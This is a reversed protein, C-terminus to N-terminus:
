TFRKIEYLKNDSKKIFEAYDSPSIVIGSGSLNDPHKVIGSGALIDETRLIIDFAGINTVRIIEGNDIRSVNFIPTGAMVQSSGATTTVAWKAFGSFTNNRNAITVDVQDTLERELNRFVRQTYNEEDVRGGNAVVVEGSAQTLVSNFLRLVGNNNVNVISTGGTFGVQPIDDMNSIALVAGNDVKIAVGFTPTGNPTFSMGDVSVNAGDVIFADGGSFGEIAARFLNIYRTTGGVNIFHYGTTCGDVYTNVMSSYSYVNAGTSDGVKFGTVCEEACCNLMHLSTSSQGTANMHFGITTRPTAKGHVIVDTLTCNWSGYNLVGVGSFDEIVVNQVTAQLTYTIGALPDGIRIGTVGTTSNTQAIVIDCLKSAGYGGGDNEFNVAITDLAGTYTIRCKATATNFKRALGHSGQLITNARLTLGSTVLYQGDPVRVKGVGKDLASQITATDDTVGDGKAGFAKVNISGDDSPLVYLKVGGATTIDEDAAASAAVTYAFGESRTVVTNGAVAKETGTGAYSLVTDALLATVSEFDRSQMQPSVKTLAM